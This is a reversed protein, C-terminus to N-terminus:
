KDKKKTKNQINKEKRISIEKGLGETNVADEGVAGHSTGGGRDGLKKTEAPNNDSNFHGKHHNPEGDISGLGEFNTGFAGTKVSARRRNVRDHNGDDHSVVSDQQQNSGEECHLGSLGIGGVAFGM